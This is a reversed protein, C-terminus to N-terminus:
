ELESWELVSDGTTEQFVAWIAGGRPDLLGAWPERADAKVTASGSTTATTQEGSPASNVETVRPGEGPPLLNFLVSEEGGGTETVPVGDPTFTVEMVTRGEHVVRGTWVGDQEQLTIEDAVYKDFGIARGGANATEDDVPMTYTYWGTRGQYECQLLVYGERYPVLPLTVDYYDAITMVVLPQDPMDFQQPLLSRYLELDAPAFATRILRTGLFAWPREEPSTPKPQLTAQAETSATVTPEATAGSEGGDSGCAGLSLCAGVALVLGVLCVAARQRTFHYISKWRKV